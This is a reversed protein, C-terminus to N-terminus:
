MFLLRRSKVLEKLSALILTSFDYIYGIKFHTSRSPQPLSEASLLLPQWPPGTELEWCRSPPECGYKDGIEPVREIGVQAKYVSMSVALVGACIFYIFLVAVFLRKFVHVWPHKLCWNTCHDDTGPVHMQLPVHSVEYTSDYDYM